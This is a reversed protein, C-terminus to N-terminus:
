NKQKPCVIKLEGPLCEVELPFEAGRQGDVDTQPADPSTIGIRASRIYHVAYNENGSIVFQLAAWADSLFSHRHLVILDLVGDRLSAKRALPFSGATMGNFCLVMLANIRETGGDHTVTMQIDKLGHLEKLGEIIYALKGIRHKLADPTRQSTCTFLGFSFINVFYLGNVRGCDISEVEGGVIQRAAAVPDRSMGLAGAFDNATGSPIIGIPIDLGSSKMANVVYNITGDGGCVVVLAPQQSVGDFPNADFCIERRQVTYGGEALTACVADLSREVTAHGARVNYLLLATKM